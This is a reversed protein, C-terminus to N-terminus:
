KKINEYNAKFVASTIFFEMLFVIYIHRFNLTIRYAFIQNLRNSQCVLIDFPNSVKRYMQTKKSILVFGILGYVIVNGGFCIQFNFQKPSIYHIVYFANLILQLRQKAAFM